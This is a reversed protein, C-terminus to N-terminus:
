EATELERAGESAMELALLVDRFRRRTAPCALSAEHRDCLATKAEDPMCSVFDTM